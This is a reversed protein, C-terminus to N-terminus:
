HGKCDAQRLFRKLESLSEVHDTVLRLQPPTRNLRSGILYYKALVLQLEQIESTKEISPGMEWFPLTEQCFKPECLVSPKTKMCCIKDDKSWYSWLLTLITERCFTSRRNLRSSLVLTEQEDEQIRFMKLTLTLRKCGLLSIWGWVHVVDNVHRVKLRVYEHRDHYDLYGYKTTTDRIRNSPSLSKWMEYYSFYLLENNLETIIVTM